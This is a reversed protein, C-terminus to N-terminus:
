KRLAAVCAARDVAAGQLNRADAYSSRREGGQEPPYLYIDLVCNAGTFQLKRAPGEVVDLRPPGFLAVLEDDSRDLIASLGRRDIPPPAAVPPPAVSRVPAAAPAAACGALALAVGTVLGIKGCYGRSM